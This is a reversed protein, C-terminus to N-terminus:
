RPPTGGDTPTRGPDNPAEPTGPADPPGDGTTAPAPDRLLHERGGPNRRRSRVFVALAVLLVIASVWVNVRVGLILNAEDIRLAEIWLRGATYLVVYLTFVQGNGLSWRRQLVILVAAAALCWLAEYLFTPHFTGLIVPRGDAGTVARGAADDWSHVRLAWPLDTPRGYLENNFWNGLRGLAQAVLLGPAMADAVPALRYGARRAGIWAGLAGLAVAGWIGLGGEWVYLARVPDGGPGFYAEPSTIVHYIRAGVIGFPVAWVALDAVLDPRGGRARWRREAILVGAVIGAIICLAYARVPVPGLYWVSQAPSPLAAPLAAVAAGLASM